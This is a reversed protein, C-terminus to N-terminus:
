MSLAVKKLALCASFLGLGLTMESFVQTCLCEALNPGTKLPLMSTVYVECPPLM